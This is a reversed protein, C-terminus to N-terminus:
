RSGNARNAANMAELTQAEAAEAKMRANDTERTAQDVEKSADTLGEDPSNSAALLHDADIRPTARVVRWGMLGQRRLDIEVSSRTKTNAVVYRYRGFSLYYQTISTGDNKLAIPLAPVSFLTPKASTSGFLEEIGAPSANQRIFDSVFGTMMRDEMESDLFAGASPNRSMEALMMRKFVPKIDSSLDRQIRPFDILQELRDRDHRQAARIIDQVIWQPSLYFAAGAGIFCATGLIAILWTLSRVQMMKMEETAGRTQHLDRGQDLRLLAM